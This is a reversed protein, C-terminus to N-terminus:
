MTSRSRVSSVGVMALRSGARLGPMIGTIPESGAAARDWPMSKSCEAPIRWPRSSNTVSPMVAASLCSIVASNCPEPILRATIPIPVVVPAGHDGGMADLAIVVSM